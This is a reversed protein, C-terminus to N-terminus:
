GRLQPYRAFKWYARLALTIPNYFIKRSDGMEFDAQWDMQCRCGQSNINFLSDPLNVFAGPTQFLSVFIFTFITFALQWPLM